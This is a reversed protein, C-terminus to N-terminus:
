YATYRVVIAQAIKVRNLWRSQKTTNTKLLNSHSKTQQSCCRLFFARGLMALYLTKKLTALINPM